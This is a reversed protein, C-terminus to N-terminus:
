PTHVGLITRYDDPTDVDDLVGPDDVDVNVITSDHARLVAKAGVAPDAGRLEEFMARSFLVPHGHRGHNVARIIPAGTAGFVTLLTAVTDAAVLPADVPSVLVGSVGPGDVARLGCLLSSLQGADADPNDVFRVALGMSAVEARLQEDGARGVVVSLAIGGDRLAAGVRHVFTRGDPCRLLPKSRGMRSSLGAALIIGRVMPSNYAV